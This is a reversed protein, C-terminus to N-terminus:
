DVKVKDYAGILWKTISAIQDQYKEEVIIRDIDIRYRNFFIDVAKEFCKLKVKEDNM